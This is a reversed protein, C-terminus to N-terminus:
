GLCARRRTNFYAGLNVGPAALHTPMAPVLDHTAIADTGSPTSYAKPTASVKPKDIDDDIDDIIEAYEEDDIEHFGDLAEILDEDFEDDYTDDYGEHNHDYDDGNDQTRKPAM